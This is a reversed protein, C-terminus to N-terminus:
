LIKVANFLLVVASFLNFHSINRCFNLVIQPNNLIRPSPPLSPLFTYARRPVKERNASRLRPQLVTRKSIYLVVKPIGNQSRYSRHLKKKSCNRQMQPISRNSLLFRLPAFATIQVPLVPAKLVLIIPIGTPIAIAITTPVIM